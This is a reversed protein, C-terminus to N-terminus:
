NDFSINEKKIWITDIKECNNFETDTLIDENRVYQCPLNVCESTDDNETQINEFSDVYNCNLEEREYTLNDSSTATYVNEIKITRNVSDCEQNKILEHTLSLYESMEFNEIYNEQLNVTDPFVECENETSPINVYETNDVFVNSVTQNSKLLSHTGSPVPLFTSKCKHVKLFSRNLIRQNCKKCKYHLMESHDKKIHRLLIKEDGLKIKCIKCKDESLPRLTVEKKILKHRILMHHIFDEYNFIIKCVLCFQLLQKASKKIVKKVKGKKHIRNMHHVYDQLNFEIKCITCFFLLKKINTSQTNDISGHITMTGSNKSTGSSSKLLTGSNKSTGSTSKLLTSSNKSTGSTSKLMTGSNRSIDSVSESITGSNRLSNSTSELMTNSNMSTNSAIQLMANCNCLKMCPTLKTNLVKDNKIINKCYKCLEIKKMERVYKSNDRWFMTWNIYELTHDNKLHNKLLEINNHFGIKCFICIYMYICPSENNRDECEKRKKNSYYKTSKTNNDLSISKSAKIKMENSSLKVQKHSKIVHSIANRKSFL